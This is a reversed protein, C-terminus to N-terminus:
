NPSRLREAGSSTLFGIRGAAITAIPQRMDRDVIVLDARKGVAIKGRDHLGAAHAPNASVLSWSKQLTLTGRGALLLAARLM